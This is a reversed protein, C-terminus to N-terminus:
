TPTGSEAPLSHGGSARAGSCPLSAVGSRTPSRIAPIPASPSSRSSNRAESLAFARGSCSGPRLASEDVSARAGFCPRPQAGRLAHSCLRGDLPWIGGAQRHRRRRLVCSRRRRVGRLEMRSPRGMCLPWTRAFGLLDGACEDSVRPSTRSSTRTTTVAPAVTSYCSRLGSVCRAAMPCAGSPSEVDFWLRTGNVQVHMTVGNDVRGTPTMSVRTIGSAGSSCVSARGRRPPSPQNTSFALSAQQRSRSPGRSAGGSRPWSVGNERLEPDEEHDELRALRDSHVVPFGVLLVEEGDGSLSQQDDLAFLTREAWHSKTCQGGSVFCTMM